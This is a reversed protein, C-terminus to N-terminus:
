QEYGYAAQHIKAMTRPIRLLCCLICCFISLSFRHAQTRHIYPFGNNRSSYWEMMQSAICPVVFINKGDQTKLFCSIPLSRFDPINYDKLGYPVSFVSVDGYPIPLLPHRIESLPAENDMTIVLFFPTLICDEPSSLLCAFWRAFAFANLCFFVRRLM